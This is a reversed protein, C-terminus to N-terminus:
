LFLALFSGKQTNKPLPLGLPFNCGTVGLGSKDKYAQRKEADTSVPM